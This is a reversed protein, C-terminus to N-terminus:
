INHRGLKLKLTIKPLPDPIPLLIPRPTYKKNCKPSPCMVGDERVREETHM